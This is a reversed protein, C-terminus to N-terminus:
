AGRGEVIAKEGEKASNSGQRARLSNANVIDCWTAYCDPLCWVDTEKKRTLRVLM